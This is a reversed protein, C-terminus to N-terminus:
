FPAYTWNTTIGYLRYVGTNQMVVQWELNVETAATNMFAASALTAATVYPNAQTATPLTITVAGGHDAVANAVNNAFTRTSLDGFTASTLAATTIQHVISFSDLRAGKSTTTRFPAPFSCIINYTEAGTATRALAWDNAAVRTAVLTTSGDARCHGIADYFVRFTNHAGGITVTGTGAPTLTIGINSDGGTCAVASITPNAGTAAGVARLGNVTTTNLRDTECGIETRNPTTSTDVRLTSQSGSGAVTALYFLGRSLVPQSLALPVFPGILGVLILLALARRLM